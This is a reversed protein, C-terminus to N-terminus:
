DFVIMGGITYGITNFVDLEDAPIQNIIQAIKRERRFSPIVTDSSLSFEGINSHHHLYVQATTDVLEFVVGSPLRKSWLYKHYRRLTPSFSDPDKGSPTDSRFDFTTDIQSRM